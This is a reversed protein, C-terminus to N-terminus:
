AGAAGGAGLALGFFAGLGPELDTRGMVFVFLFGVTHGILDHAQRIILYLPLFIRFTLLDLFFLELGLGDTGTDCRQHM